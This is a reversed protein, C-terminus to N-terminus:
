AGLRTDVKVAKAAATKKGIRLKPKNISNWYLEVTQGKAKAIFTALPVMKAPTGKVYEDRPDHFSYNLVGKKMKAAISVLDNLCRTSDEVVGEVYGGTEVMQLELAGTAKHIFVSCRRPQFDEGTKPNIRNGTEPNIAYAM